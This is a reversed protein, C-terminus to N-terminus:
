DHYCVEYGAIVKGEVMMDTSTSVKCTLNIYISCKVTM